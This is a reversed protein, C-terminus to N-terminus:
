IPQCWAFPKYYHKLKPSLLCLGPLFLSFFGPTKPLNTRGMAADYAAICFLNFSLQSSCPWCKVTHMWPIDTTTLCPDLNLTTFLVSCELTPAVSLYFICPMTAIFAISFSLPYLPSPWFKLGPLFACPFSRHLPAMPLCSPALWVSILATSAFARLCSRFQHTQPVRPSPAQPTWPMFIPCLSSKFM